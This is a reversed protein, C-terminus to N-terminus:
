IKINKRSKGQQEGKLYGQNKENFEIGDLEGAEDHGGVGRGGAAGSAELM